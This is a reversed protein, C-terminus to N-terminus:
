DNLSLSRCWYKQLGYRYESSLVEINCESLIEMFSDRDFEWIHDDDSYVLPVGTMIRYHNLYSDDIDPIEIYIYTFYSKFLMLFAKPDDLHELLHSLILVDFHENNSTLYKHADSHMFVLNDKKHNANAKDIASKDYDVGVVKKASEAIISSIDGYKCGIDMVSYEPLINKLLFNLNKRRMSIDSFGYVTVAQELSLRWFIWNLNLFLKLKQVKGLLPLKGLRYLFSLLLIRPKHRPFHLKTM